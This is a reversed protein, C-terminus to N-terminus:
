RALVRRPRQRLEADAGDDGRRISVDEANVRTVVAQQEDFSFFRSHLANGLLRLGPARILQGDVKLGLGDGIIAAERFPEHDFREAAMAQQVPKVFNAHRQCMLRLNSAKFMLAVGEELM